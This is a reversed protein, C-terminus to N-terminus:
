VSEGRVFRIRSALTAAGKPPVLSALTDASADVPGGACV